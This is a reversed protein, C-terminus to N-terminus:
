LYNYWTDYKKMHHISWRGGDKQQSSVCVVVYMNYMILLRSLM